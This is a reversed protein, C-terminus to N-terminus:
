SAGALVLSFGALDSFGFLSFGSGYLDIEANVGAEHAARGLELYFGASIGIQEANRKTELAQRGAERLHSAM